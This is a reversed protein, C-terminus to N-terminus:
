AQRIWVRGPRAAPTCRTRRCLASLPQVLVNEYIEPFTAAAFLAMESM